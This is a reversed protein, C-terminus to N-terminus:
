SSKTDRRAPRRKGERAQQRSKRLRAVERPDRNIEDTIKQSVIALDTLFQARTYIQERTEQTAGWPDDWRTESAEESKRPLSKTNGTMTLKQTPAM